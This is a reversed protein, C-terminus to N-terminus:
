LRKLQNSVFSLFCNEDFDININIIFIIEFNREGQAQVNVQFSVEPTKGKVGGVVDWLGNAERDSQFSPFQCKEHWPSASKTADPRSIFCYATEESMVDVNLSNIHNKHEM